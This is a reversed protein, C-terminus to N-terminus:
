VSVISMTHTIHVICASPTTYRGTSSPGALSITCGPTIHVQAITKSVDPQVQGRCHIVVGPEAGKCGLDALQQIVSDLPQSETVEPPFFVREYSQLELLTHCRSPLNTDNRPALWASLNDDNLASESHAITTAETNCPDNGCQISPGLQPKLKSHIM